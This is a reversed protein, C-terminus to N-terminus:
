VASPPVRQEGAGWGALLAGGYPAVSAHAGQPAGGGDLEDTGAAVIGAERPVHGRQDALVVHRRQRPGAVATPMQGALDAHASLADHPGFVDACELATGRDQEGGSGTGRHQPQVGP